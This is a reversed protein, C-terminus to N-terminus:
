PTGEREPDVWTSAAAIRERDVWVVAKRGSACVRRRGSDVVHGTTVLETRRPRATNAPLITCAAIEEDTLGDHSHEIAELVIRRLRGLKGALSEGADISTDSHAQVPATTPLDLQRDNGAGIPPCTWPQLTYPDIEADRKRSV